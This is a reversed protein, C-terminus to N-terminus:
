PNPSQPVTAEGELKTAGAAAATAEALERRSKAFAARASRTQSRAKGPRGSRALTLAVAEESGRYMYECAIM